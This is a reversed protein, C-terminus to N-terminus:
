GLIAWIWAVGLVAMGIAEVQWARERMDAGGSRGLVLGVIPLGAAIAVLMLRGVPADFAAASLVAVAAIGVVLAAQVTWARGAGLWTAISATGAARDREVDALANAIALGAGAAVAVPVLVAFPPTLGGTAGYWGFVPLM